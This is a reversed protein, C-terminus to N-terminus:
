CKVVNVSARGIQYPACAGTASSTSMVWTGAAPATATTTYKTSIMNNTAPSFVFTNTCKQNLSNLSLMRGGSLTLYCLRAQPFSVQITYSKGACVKNVPKGGDLVAITTSRDAVPAKHCDYGKTPVANCNPAVESAWLQPYALAPAVFALALFVARIFKAM